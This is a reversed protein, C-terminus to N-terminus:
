TEVTTCHLARNNYFHTRILPSLTRSANSPRTTIRRRLTLCALTTTAPPNPSLTLLKTSITMSKWRLTRYCNGQQLVGITQKRDKIATTFDKVADTYRGADYLAMGRHFFFNGNGPELALAAEFDGLAVIPKGVKRYCQGRNSYYLATGSDLRIASSYDMIAKKNEGMVRYAGVFTYPRSNRANHGHHVGGAEAYEGQEEGEQEQKFRSQLVRSSKHVDKETNAIAAIENNDLDPDGDELGSVGEVDKNGRRGASRRKSAM